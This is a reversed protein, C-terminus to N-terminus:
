HWVSIIYEGVGFPSSPPVNAQGPSTQTTLPDSAEVIGNEQGDAQQRQAGFRLPTTTPTGTRSSQAPTRRTPTGLRDAESSRSGRAPTRRTPTRLARDSPTGPRDAESSRAPTRRTPTRLVRDSPTGPRDAESSQRSSPRSGRPRTPSSM